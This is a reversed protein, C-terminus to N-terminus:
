GQVSKYLADISWEFEFNWLGTIRGAIEYAILAILGPTLFRLLALTEHGLADGIAVPVTAVFIVDLPMM